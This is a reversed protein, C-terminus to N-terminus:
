GDAQELARYRLAEAAHAASVTTAGDLDALTRAVRLCRHYSRATLLHRAFAAQLLAEADASPRAYRELAQGALQANVCGQRKLQIHRAAEVRARVRASSEAPAAARGLQAAEVRPVFIQVDIRDLLPGSIKARYRQIQDPTCRCKGSPDGLWGCPCPNMAAVLQFRAPFDAQRAARSLTIRGSELPERLVELTRRDFEPLEDLFLVGHHALTIEGPRVDSGGGVLAVGSATHHPARYPRHGWNRVDFGGRGISAVAAVELAEENTLPPLIGPLRQALMSKGAGPPGVLLLSHGGAAAIELARRAQAQGRVDALDPAAAAIAPQAMPVAPVPALANDHMAMCLEGLHAAAYVRARPALCAEAANTQPVLLAHGAQTARLAAPLTGPVGRLAGSLALEGLIEIGALRQAPIQGSAALIGLAIALDFRAGDKPLDAPALNCTIRQVPFRYGCTTIAAKVRDKAERVAAEPLGVINLGPLGPALHVEVTVLDAELGNQARSLVTALQTM